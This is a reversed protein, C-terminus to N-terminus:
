PLGTQLRARIVLQLHQMASRFRELEARRVADVESALQGDGIEKAVRAIVDLEAMRGFHRLLEYDRRREHEGRLDVVSEPAVNRRLYSGSRIKTLGRSHHSRKEPAGDEDEDGDEGPAAEGKSEASAAAPGPGPQPNDPSAQPQAWLPAAGVLLGALILGVRRM